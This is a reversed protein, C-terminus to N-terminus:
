KQCTHLLKPLRGRVFPPVTDFREFVKRPGPEIGIQDRRIDIIYILRRQNSYNHASHLLQNDFAFIDHWDIEIGEVELFIDERPVILPIHIRIYLGNKYEADHHRLISASKELVSYNSIACADGWKETLAAATPFRAKVEPRRYPSTIFDNGFNTYKLCETKWSTEKSSLHNVSFIPNAYATGKAFDGDLFDQHYNLFDMTLQPALSLLEDAISIEERLWISKQTMNHKNVGTLRNAM